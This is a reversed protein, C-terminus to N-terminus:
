YCTAHLLVTPCIYKGPYWDPRCHSWAKDSELNIDRIGFEWIVEQHTKAQPRIKYCRSAPNDLLTLYHLPYANHIFPNTRRHLGPQSRVRQHIGTL